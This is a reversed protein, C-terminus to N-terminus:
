IWRLLLKHGIVSTINSRACHLSRADRRKRYIRNGVKEGVCKASEKLLLRRVIGESCLRECHLEGCLKLEIFCQVYFKRNSSILRWCNHLSLFCKRNCIHIFMCKGISKIQTSSSSILSKQYRQNRNFDFNM